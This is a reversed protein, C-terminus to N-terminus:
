YREARSIELYRKRKTAKSNTHYNELCCMCERLEIPKVPKLARKNATILRKKSNIRDLICRKCTIFRPYYDKEDKTEQCKKCIRTM